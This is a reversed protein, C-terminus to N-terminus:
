EEAELLKMADEFSKASFNRPTDALAEDVTSVLEDPLSTAGDKIGKWWARGFPYGLYVPAEDQVMRQWASRELLGRESLDYLGRWQLVTIAWYFGDLARFDLHSLSEPNDMSKQRIAYINAPLVAISYAIYNDSSQKLIQLEILESNQRIELIVLAVGVLVALTSLIQHWGDWKKKKM